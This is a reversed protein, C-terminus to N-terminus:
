LGRHRMNRVRLIYRCGDMRHAESHQAARHQSRRDSPPTLLSAAAEWAKSEKRTEKARHASGGLRLLDVLGLEPQPRIAVFAAPDHLKLTLPRESERILALARAYGLTRAPVGQVALLV